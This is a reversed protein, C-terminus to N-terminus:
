YDIAYRKIADVVGSLDGDPEKKPIGWKVLLDVTNERAEFSMIPFQAFAKDIYERQKDPDYATKKAEDIYKALGVGKLKWAQPFDGYMRDIAYIDLRNRLIDLEVKTYHHSLVSKQKEGLMRNLEHEELARARRLRTAFTRRLDKFILRKNKDPEKGLAKDRVDDFAQRFAFMRGTFLYRKQTETERFLLENSDFFGDNKIGVGLANSMKYLVERTWYPLPIDRIGAATKSKTIKLTREKFNIDDWRLNFVEERRMGTELASFIALPVYVQNIGRLHDECVRLIETFEGKQLLRERAKRDKKGPVDIGSFPNPLGKWPDKKV